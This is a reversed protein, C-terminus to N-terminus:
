LQTRTEEQTKLYGDHELHEALRQAKHLHEFLDRLVYAASDTPPQFAELSDTLEEIRGSLLKTGPQTM